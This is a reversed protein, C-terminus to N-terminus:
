AHAPSAPSRESHWIWQGFPRLSNAYSSICHLSFANQPTLSVNCSAEPGHSEFDCGLPARSTNVEARPQGKDIDDHSAVTCLLFSFKGNWTRSRAPMFPECAHRCDNMLSQLWRYRTYGLADYHTCDYLRGEKKFSKIETRRRSSVTDSKM